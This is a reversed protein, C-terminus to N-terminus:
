NMYPSNGGNPGTVSDFFFGNDFPGSPTQRDVWDNRYSNTSGYYTRSDGYTNITDSPEYSYGGRRSSYGRVRARRKRYVRRRSTRSGYYGGRYKSYGGGAQAPAIAAHTMGVFAGVMVIAFLVRM